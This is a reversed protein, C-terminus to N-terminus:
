KWKGDNSLCRWPVSEIQLIQSCMLAPCWVRIQKNHDNHFKFVFYSFFYLTYLFNFICIYLLFLINGEFYVFYFTKSLKHIYLVHNSKNVNIITTINNVCNGIYTRAHTPKRSHACGILTYLLRSLKLTTLMWPKSTNFLCRVFQIVLRLIEIIITIGPVM